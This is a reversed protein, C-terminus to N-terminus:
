AMPLLGDARGISDPGEQGPPLMVLLDTALAPVCAADIHESAFCRGLLDDGLYGDYEAHQMDPALLALAAADPAPDRSLVTLAEVLLHQGGTPVVVDLGNSVAKHWPVM